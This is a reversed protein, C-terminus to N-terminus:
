LEVRVQHRPLLPCAGGELIGGRDPINPAGGWGVFDAGWWRSKAPVGPEACREADLHATRLTLFVSECVRALGKNVAVGSGTM